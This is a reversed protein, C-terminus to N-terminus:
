LNLMGLHNHQLHSPVVYFISGYLSGSPEVHLKNCSKPEFERELSEAMLTACWIAVVSLLSRAM